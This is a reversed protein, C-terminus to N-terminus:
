FLSHDRYSTRPDKYVRFCEGKEDDDHYIRKGVWDSHCKIGFHNNAVLALRSDGVSSELIGQALTISAPIDYVNMEECAIPSFTAM